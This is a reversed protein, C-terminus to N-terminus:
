KIPQSNKNANQMKQRRYAKIAQYKAYVLRAYHYRRLAQKETQRFGANYAGVAAWSYGYKKVAHALYYAGTYINMCHDNLLQQKTIGLSSLAYLHQSDVQMLGIGYGTTPNKGIADPTASSEQWSIARLLDPDVRYDHGARDYCDAATAGSSFLGALLLLMTRLKMKQRLGKLGPLVRTRRALLMLL